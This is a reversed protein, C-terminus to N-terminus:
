CDDKIGHPNMALEKNKYCKHSTVEPGFWNAPQFRDAEDISSFEVEVLMLTDLQGEFIDLDYTQNSDLLGSWRIKEIRKGETEPWLTEFQGQDISIEREVRVMGSGSKVTLFYDQDKKRLRFEISDATDTLYGQLIHTKQAESLDPLTKVLFKREIEISTDTM